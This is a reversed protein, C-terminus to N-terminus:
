DSLLELDKHQHHHKFKQIPNPKPLNEKSDDDNDDNSDDPKGNSKSDKDNLNEILQVSGRREDIALDSKKTPVCTIIM